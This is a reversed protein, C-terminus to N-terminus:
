YVGGRLMRRDDEAVVNISVADLTVATQSFAKGNLSSGTKFAMHTKVLFIGELHASTGGDVHGAVQWFISEAKAGGALVVAANSGVLVDQAIQLIWVADETDQGDFTDSDTFHANSSWKYLGPM